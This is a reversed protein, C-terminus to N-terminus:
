KYPRWFEPPDMPLNTDCNPDSHGVAWGPPFGGCREGLMCVPRQSWMVIAPLGDYFGEIETGDKPAVDMPSCGEPLTSGDYNESM